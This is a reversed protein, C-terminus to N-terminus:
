LPRGTPPWQFQRSKTGCTCMHNPIELCLLGYFAHNNKKGYANIVFLMLKPYRLVIKSRSNLTSNVTHKIHSHLLSAEVLERYLYKM